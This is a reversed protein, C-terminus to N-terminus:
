LSFIKEERFIEPFITVFHSKIIQQLLLRKYTQSGRADSIPAIEQQAAPLLRALTEFNVPQQIITKIAQQLLLPTPGVGGATLAAETILGDEVKLFLASNVSAIDLHTRKSVKEFNVYCPATPKRFRISKIIEQPQLNLKKYGLYFDKFPQERTLGHNDEIILTSSLALFFVSFDGIPSANVFNGALTAMNRIPTSSVLKIVSEFNPFCKRMVEQRALFSVTAHGSVEITDEKEVLWPQQGNNVMTQLSGTSLKEPQQVFLDTGGGIKKAVSTTKPSSIKLLREYIESFYHPVINQAIAKSLTNSDDSPWQQLLALAAREISKYGTCRCINGDMAAIVGAETKPGETLFYNSLAMVFGPTCYGCQSASFDCFSKQVATLDNGLLGEITVVHKGNVNILPMLCSTVSQYCVQQQEVSGLLVVCAGCDGERCGIKTGTLQQQYRIFDVLLFGDPLEINIERNNLIFQTM